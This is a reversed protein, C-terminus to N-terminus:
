SSRLFRFRVPDLFCDLLRDGDLAGEPPGSLAAALGQYLQVLREGYAELSYRERVVSRNTALPQGAQRGFATARLVDRLGTDRVARAIVQEQTAEDLCGFDIQDDRVWADLATQAADHPPERGYDQFYRDLAAALRERLASLDLADVPVDLREYLGGLDLGEQKFDRTIGPLDRGILPKGFGWPELFALGFGEAVSTTILAESRAILAHFSAGAEGAGLRLPLQLERAFAAWRDHIPQWVPNRPGLTTAVGAGVPAVAALLAAEGINKRRIGRTPYLYLTEFEPLPPPEDLVPPATPVHVPNPLLHLREDPVGAEHLFGADRANLVAYHIGPGLPYAAAGGPAARQVRHNAPRGDEAFDHVQLLAKRGPALLAALADTFVANKGMSHNHIHWVDPEQGDLAGRAAAVLAAALAPGDPGDGPELRYGLGDVVRVAPLPGPDDPPEGTLVVVQADHPVLAAVANEVVRTVGGRRMHYHVIAIRMPDIGAAQLPLPPYRLIAMGRVSAVGCARM